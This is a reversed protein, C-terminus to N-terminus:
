QNLGMPNDPEITGRLDYLHIRWQGKAAVQIALQRADPSLSIRIPTRKGPISLRHMRGTVRDEIIAIRRNGLQALVALYRANWSLSPSSHPQYQSLHRM